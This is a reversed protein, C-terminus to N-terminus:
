IRFLKEITLDEMYSEPKAILEIKEIHEIYGYIPIGSLEEIAAPWSTMERLSAVEGYRSNKEIIVENQTKPKLNNTKIYYAGGRKQEYDGYISSFDAAVWNAMVLTEDAENITVHGYFPPMIIATGAPVRALIVDSIAGNQDHRQMLYTAQGSVVYYLEPYEVETSVKVPHYHGSTKIYEEGLVGAPIVTLDFRQNNTAIKEEDGVRHVGRYMLYAADDNLVLNEDAAVVALDAFSRASTKELGVGDGFELKNDDTLMVPLGVKESLDIKM